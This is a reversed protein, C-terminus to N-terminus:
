GTISLFQTYTFTKTGKSKQQFLKSAHMRCWGWSNGQPFLSWDGVQIAPRTVGDTNAAM